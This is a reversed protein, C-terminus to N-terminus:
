QNLYGEYALLFKEKAGPPLRLSFGKDPPLRDKRLSPNLTKLQKLPVNVWSAVQQLKLPSKVYTSDFDIVPLYRPSKFNHDELDRAIKIAALIKPVYSRTIRPLSGRKCITWFDKTGCRKIAARVPVDGANYAALALPWSNYRDYLSRLYKAAAETSKIPDMREDVWRDVRLGLSRATSSLLQWYGGAGGPSLAKTKFSSEVLVVYILEAPVGYSELINAMIPLYIWSRELGDVFTLRGKGKYFGVYKQVAPQNPIHIQSINISKGAPSNSKPKTPSTLSAVICTDGQTPREHALFSESLKGWSNKALDSKTNKLNASCSTLLLCLLLATKLWVLRFGMSAEGLQHRHFLFSPAM